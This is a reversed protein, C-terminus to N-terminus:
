HSHPPEKQRLLSELTYTNPCFERFDRAATNRALEDTCRGKCTCHICTRQLDRMTAPDSRALISPDISLARLMKSVESAADPAKATLGRFDSLPMGLDKAIKMEEDDSCRGLEDRLGHLVRHKKIWGVITSVVFEVTPYPQNRAELESM